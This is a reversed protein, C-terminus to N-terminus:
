VTGKGQGYYQAFAKERARRFKATDLYRKWALVRFRIFDFSDGYILTGNSAIEHQLLPPAYWIDVVDVNDESINFIKAAEIGIKTKEELTLPNCALAAVDTDSNKGAKGTAQSGFLIVLIVDPAFAM